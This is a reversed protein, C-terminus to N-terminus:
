QPQGLSVIRGSGSVSQNVRPQGFYEVRGNGSIKIDLMDTARLVAHGSGSISVTASRGELKGALYKGSGSIHVAQTDARGALSCDGSGSIRMTLSNATLADITIKGSGSIAIELCDASLCPANINVAGWATLSEIKKVTLNFKVPRSPRLECRDKPGISLTGNSVITEIRPLLNDDAEISLSERDGQSLCLEGAGRLLIRSFGSIPRDENVVKGSGTVKEPGAPEPKPDYLLIGVGAELPIVRVRGGLVGVGIGALPWVDLSLIEGRRREEGFLGFDVITGNYPHLGGMTIYGDALGEVKLASPKEQTEIKLSICGGLFVAIAAV